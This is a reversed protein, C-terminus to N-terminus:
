YFRWVTDAQHPKSTQIWVAARPFTEDFSAEPVEFPSISKEISTAATEYNMSHHHRVAPELACASSATVLSMPKAIATKRKRVLIPTSHGSRAVKSAISHGQRLDQMLAGSRLCVVLAM